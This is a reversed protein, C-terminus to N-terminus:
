DVPKMIEGIKDKPYPWVEGKVGKALYFDGARVTVNGELTAITIEKEPDGTIDTLPVLHTVAKKVCYGPRIIMYSDEFIQPDVPWYDNPTEVESVLLDGRHATLQAGWPTTIEMEQEEEPAPFFPVVRREVTSRYPKFDLRELMPDDSTIVLPPTMIQMLPM